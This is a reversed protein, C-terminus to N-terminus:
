WRSLYWTGGIALAIALFISGNMIHRARSAQTTTQAKTL